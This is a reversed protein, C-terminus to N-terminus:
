FNLKKNVELGLLKGFLVAEASNAFAVDAYSWLDKIDEFFTEIFFGAPLNFGFTRKNDLAFEALMYVINMRHKLIFLETYVLEVNSLEEWVRQVFEKSILTSAGLDTIHGRDRNHCFVCCVGTNPKDFKEFIPTINEKMLLDAYLDGYFDDGVSGLLGTRDDETKEKLM